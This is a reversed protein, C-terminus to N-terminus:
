VQNIESMLFDFNGKPLAMELYCKVLRLDGSNGVGLIVHLLFFSFYIAYVVFYGFRLLLVAVVICSTCM